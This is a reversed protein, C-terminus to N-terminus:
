VPPHWGDHVTAYRVSAEVASTEARRIQEEGPLPMLAAAQARAAYARPRCTRRLVTAISFHNASRSISGSKPPINTGLPPISGGVRPNETGKLGDLLTLRGRPVDTLCRDLGTL